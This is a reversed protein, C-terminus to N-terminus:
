ARRVGGTGTGTRVREYIAEYRDSTRTVSFHREALDHAARGIRDLSPGDLDLLRTLGGALAEPASPPVVMWPEVALTRSSGVDTTIVPRGQALSEAGAMPLAEGYSSSIVLGRAEAFLSTVDPVPGLLEVSDRVGAWEILTRLEANEPTIGSGACVLRAGPHRELVRRFATFLTRHDKMAHWRSLCLLRTSGGIAPTEAPVHVGNTVVEDHRAPYGTRRMYERSSESCAIVSAFRGSLRACLQALLRSRARDDTRLGSTHVTSVKPIAAHQLALAFDAHLLHSHAVDPRFRRIAERVGTVLTDVRWSATPIGLYVVDGVANELRGSLPGPPSIVLLRLEHRDGLLRSIEAVLTQAGGTSLDNVIQMIRV